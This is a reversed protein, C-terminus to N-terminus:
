TDTPLNCFFINKKGGLFWHLFSDFGSNSGSGITLSESGRIRTRVLIDRIGSVPLFERPYWPPQKPMVTGESLVGFDRSGTGKLLWRSFRTFLTYDSWNKGIFISGALILNIRFDENFLFACLNESFDAWGGDQPSFKYSWFTTMTQLCPRFSHEAVKAVARHHRYIIGIYM